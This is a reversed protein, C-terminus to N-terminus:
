QSVSRTNFHYSIKPQNTASGNAFRVPYLIQPLACSPSRRLLRSPNPLPAKIGAGGKEGHVSRAATAPNSLIERARMDAVRRRTFLLSRLRHTQM